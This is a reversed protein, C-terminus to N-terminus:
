GDFYKQRKKLRKHAVKEKRLISIGFWKLVERGLFFFGAAVFIFLYGWVRAPRHDADVEMGTARFFVTSALAMLGVTTLSLIWGIWNLRNLDFTALNYKFQDLPNKPALTPQKNRRKSPQQDEVRRILVVGGAILVLPFMTAFLLCAAEGVHKANTFALVLAYAGPIALACGVSLSILGLIRM